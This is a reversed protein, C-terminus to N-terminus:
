SHPDFKLQPFSTGDHQRYIEELFEWGRADSEDWIVNMERAHLIFIFSSFLIWPFALLLCETALILFYQFTLCLLIHIRSTFSSNTKRYLAYSLMFLDAANYLNHLIWQHPVIKSLDISLRSFSVFNTPLNKVRLAKLLKESKLNNNIKSSIEM